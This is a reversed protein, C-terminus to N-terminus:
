VEWRHRARRESIANLALLLVVVVAIAGVLGWAEWAVGFLVLALVLGIGVAACVGCLGAWFKWGLGETRQEQAGM